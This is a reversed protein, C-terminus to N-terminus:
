RSRIRNSGLADRSTKRETSWARRSRRFAQGEQWFNRYHGGAKKVMVMFLRKLYGQTWHPEVILDPFNHVAYPYDGPPQPWSRIEKACYLQIVDRIMCAVASTAFERPNIERGGVRFSIPAQALIAGEDFRDTM